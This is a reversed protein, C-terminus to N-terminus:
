FPLHLRQYCTKRSPTHPRGPGPSGRPFVVPVKLPRPPKDGLPKSWSVYFHLFRPVEKEGGSNEGGDRCQLGSQRLADDLPPEAGPPHGLASGVSLASRIAIVVLPAASAASVLASFLAALGASVLTAALLARRHL